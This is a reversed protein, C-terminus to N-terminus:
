AAAHGATSGCTSKHDGASGTHDDPNLRQSARDRWGLRHMWDGAKLSSIVPPVWPQNPLWSVSLVKGGVDLWVDLLTSTEPDSPLRLVNTALSLRCGATSLTWCAPFIETATQHIGESILMPPLVDIAWRAVSLRSKLKPLSTM